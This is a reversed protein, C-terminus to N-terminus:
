HEHREKGHEEGAPRDGEGKPPVNYYQEHAEQLSTPGPAGLTKRGCQGCKQHARRAAQLDCWYLWALLRHGIWTGTLRACYLLAPVSITLYVIWAWTDVTRWFTCFDRM